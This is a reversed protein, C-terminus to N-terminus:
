FLLKHTTLKSWKSFKDRFLLWYHKLAFGSKILSFPWTHEEKKSNSTFSYKVLIELFFNWKPRKNIIPTTPSAPVMGAKKPGKYAEGRITNYYTFNCMPISGQTHFFGLQLFAIRQSIWAFEQLLNIWETFHIICNVRWLLGSM